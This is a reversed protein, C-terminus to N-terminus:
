SLNTENHHDTSRDIAVVRMVMVVVVVMTMEIMMM